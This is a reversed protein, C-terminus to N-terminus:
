PPMITCIQKVCVRIDKCIHPRNVGKHVRSPTLHNVTIHLAANRTYYRPRAANFPICALNIVVIMKAVINSRLPGATKLAITGVHFQTYLRHGFVGRLCSLSDYLATAYGTIQKPPAVGNARARAIRWRYLRWGSARIISGYSKGTM